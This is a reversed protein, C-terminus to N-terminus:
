IQPNKSGDFPLSAQASADEAANAFAHNIMRMVAANGRVPVISVNPHERVWVRFIEDAFAQGIEAVGKFDLMVESFREVRALLRRAQSRSVLNEGEYKALALPVHTRSFRDNDDVYKEFVETTTQTAKTSIQMTIGTGTTADPADEVDILWDDDSARSRVYALGGSLITFRDFMRSTFFIGEGTHRSSDTTLKGKSLELIAEHKDSLKCDLTIKDFIGVGSDLVHIEVESYNRQYVLMCDKSESHDIVNNLMELFGHECISLVNTPLERIKPYFDNKWVIDEQTEPTIKIKVGFKEITRLKYLRTRTKGFGEVLGEEIVKKLYGNVLSRSVGFTRAALTAIDNPHEPIQRLVFERLEVNKPRAM